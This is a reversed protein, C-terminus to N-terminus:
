YLTPVKLKHQALISNLSASGTAALLSARAIMAGSGYILGAPPVLDLCHKWQRQPM